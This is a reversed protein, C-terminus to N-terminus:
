QWVSPKQMPQTHIVSPQVEMPKSPQGYMQTSVNPVQSSGITPMSNCTYTPNGRHKPNSVPMPTSGKSSRDNSEALTEQLLNRFELLSFNDTSNLYNIIKTVYDCNENQNFRISFVINKFFKGMDVATNKDMLPLCILEANANSVDVYIRDMDFLMSNPLIMYEEIRLMANAISLFVNLFQKKAVMGQFYQQLSVRSSINYKLYRMHDMQMYGVPIIGEIKNNIVMGLSLMDLAQEDEVTYVLFTNAGQNEFTFNGM